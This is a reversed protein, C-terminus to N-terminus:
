SRTSPRIRSSSASAPWRASAPPIPTAAARTTPRSRTTTRRSTSSAHGQPQARPVLRGRDEGRDLRRRRLDHRRRPGQGRGGQGQHAGRLDPGRLLQHGPLRRRAHRQALLHHHHQAGARRGPGVAAGALAAAGLDAHVEGQHRRGARRRGAVQLLRRRPGVMRGQRQRLLLGAPRSARRMRPPRAGQRRRADPQAGAAAGHGAARRPLGRAAALAFFKMHFSGEVPAARYRVLRAHGTFQVEFRRERRVAPPM